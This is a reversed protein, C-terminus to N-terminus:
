IRGDDLTLLLFVLGIIAKYAALDMMGLLYAIVMLSFLFNRVKNM